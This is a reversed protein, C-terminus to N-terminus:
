TDQRGKGGKEGADESRALAHPCPRSSGPPATQMEGPDPTLAAHGLSKDGGGSGGGGRSESPLSAATPERSKRRRGPLNGKPARCKRRPRKPSGPPSPAMADADGAGSEPALTARDRRLERAM